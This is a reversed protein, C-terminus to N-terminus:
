SDGRTLDIKDMTSDSAFFRYWFTLIGARVEKIRKQWSFSREEIDSHGFVCKEM